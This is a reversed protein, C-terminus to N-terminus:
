WRANEAIQKFSTSLGTGHPGAPSGPTTAFLRSAAPTTGAYGCCQSPPCRPAQTPESHPVSKGKNDKHHLIYNQNHMHARYKCSFAVSAANSASKSSKSSLTFHTSVHWAICEGVDRVSYQKNSRVYVTNNFRSTCSQKPQLLRLDNLPSPIHTMDTPFDLYTEPRPTNGERRRNQETTLTSM